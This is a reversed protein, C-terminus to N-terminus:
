PGDKITPCMRGCETWEAKLWRSFRVRLSPKPTMRQEQELPIYRKIQVRSDARWEHMQVDLKTVRGVELELVERYYNAAVSGETHKDVRLVVPDPSAGFVTETIKREVSERSERRLMEARLEANGYLADRPTIVFQHGYREM